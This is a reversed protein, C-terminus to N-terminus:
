PRRHFPDEGLFEATFALRERLFALGSQLSRSALRLHVGGALASASVLVDAGPQAPMAAIEDLLARARSALAPGVAVLTALLAVGEMTVEPPPGEGRVLRVADSLVPRGDVAIANRSLYADFAWREGRAARGAAIWDLLLLNGGAELEFSQEQRLRAGAFCSTPEPLIALTAGTAVRARLRHSAWRGESRYVKAESQTALLVVAGPDVDVGIDVTDGALSGGGLTAVVAWVARGRARPTFIRLPSSAACAVVSSAGDVVTVVLQGRGPALTGERAWQRPPLCPAASSDLVAAAM